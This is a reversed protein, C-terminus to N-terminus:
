DGRHAKRWDFEEGFDYVDKFDDPSDTPSTTIHGVDGNIMLYLIEGFDQTATVGWHEFVAKTMPGYLQRAYQSIGNLLERASIHRRM